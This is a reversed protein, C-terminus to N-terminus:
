LFGDIAVALAEEMAMSPETRECKAAPEPKL